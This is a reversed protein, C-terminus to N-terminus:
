NAETQERTLRAVLSEGKIQATMPNGYKDRGKIMGDTDSMAAAQYANQELVRGRTSRLNDKNCLLMFIQDLTLDGVQNPSYGYGGEFGNM